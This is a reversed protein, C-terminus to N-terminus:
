SQEKRGDGGGWPSKSTPSPTRRSAFLPGQCKRWSLHPHRQRFGSPAGQPDLSLASSPSLLGLRDRLFFLLHLVALPLFCFGGSPCLPSPAGARRGTQDRSGAQADAPPQM